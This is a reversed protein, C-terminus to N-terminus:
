SVDIGYKDLKRQLAFRSIGLEKAARSKNGQNRALAEKLARREFSAVAEPLSGVLPIAEAGAVPREGSERIADSLHELRVVGDATLLLRRMENELERVNGPWGYQALQALAEHSLEPVTKGSERAARNLLAEALLPIDDRRDRLAPLKLTLVNIRYFLDERFEGAGVMEKLDRNSAAVLRVDVQVRQDSGLPRLEGEQLVRLLKKQMAPSMDGIEDLFLTGGSAQEILGKKSRDAGTFAGRAHGFLESELLTDPLAACNEAVFARKARAGNFHVARAILEKGTGSEGQILVPLDAGIVRDLENFVRRMADSAGVIQSYDYRGRERGLEARVVALESGQDRVKRGLEENLRKIKHSSEVLRQNKERLEAVWRANRIASAAQDALLEMRKQDDADFAGEQLRNDVYLVGAVKTGLEVPVCLVSRLKLGEVSAMGDFREDRGADVTLVSRRSLVAQRAIGMSLRSSPLPIDTRDFSRAVRVKIEALGDAAAGKSADTDFLALFGREGGVLRIGSDVILRLLPDLEHEELIARAIRAFVVLEDEEALETGSVTKLGHDELFGEAGGIWEIRANGIALVDGSELSSKEVRHGNHLTGNASGLDVIWADGGQVEIQCHHRSSHPSKLQVHNDGSRGVKILPAQFELTQRLGDEILILKQPTM